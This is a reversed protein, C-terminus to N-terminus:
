PQDARNTPKAFKDLRDRMGLLLSDTIKKISEDRSNEVAGDQVHLLNDALPLYEMNHTVLIITRHSDKHISSLLEMVKDGNKTDLSGTPEDAIIFSPDNVLARAVAVRQQEGGSMHSPSSKAYAQMDIKELATIAMSHAQSKGYGLFYLPLAVNEVVNLSQVWFNQQYIIGISSARFRALKDPKFTYINDNSFLITGSTPRQLGTLINLLTSKGSGSVGYIVNFSNSLMDFNVNKLIDVTDEGVKFSQNIDRAKILAEGQKAM